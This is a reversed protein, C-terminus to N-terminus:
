LIVEITAYDFVKQSQYFALLHGEVVSLTVDKRNDRLKIVNAPPSSLPLMVTLPPAM